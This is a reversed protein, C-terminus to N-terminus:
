HHLETGCSAVASQITTYVPSANNLCNIGADDVVLEISSSFFSVMNDSSTSANNGNNAPDLAAGAPINVKAFGDSTPSVAINYTKGDNSPNTVVITGIGATSGTTDVDTNDFGTVVETFIATFNVPSVNTPDAQGAAQNITVDPSTTDNVTVNVTNVANDVQATVVATQNGSFVGGGTFTTSALGDVLPTVTPNVTGNTASFNVPIGNPNNASSATPAIPNPLHNTATFTDTGLNNFRLNTTITATNGTNVSAQSTTTNSLILYPTSIDVSGETTDCGPGGNPGQNCGWFNNSQPVMSATNNDIGITNGAIRNFDASVVVPFVADGTDFDDVSIGAQTAGTISNSHLNAVTNTTDGTFSLVGVGTRPGFSSGIIFNNSLNTTGQDLDFGSYRVQTVTNRDVNTTIGPSATFLVADNNNFTNGSISLSAMDFALIGYSYYTDFSCNANNCVNGSITNNSITATVGNNLQIGNQAIDTQAGAGTFTSNKITATSGARSVIAGTKQYDDVTM